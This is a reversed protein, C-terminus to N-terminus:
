QGMGSVTSYHATGEDDVMVVVSNLHTAVESTWILAGTNANRAVLSYPASGDQRFLVGDAVLTSFAITEIFKGCENSGIFVAGNWVKTIAAAFGALIGGFGVM